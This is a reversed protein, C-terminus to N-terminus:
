APQGQTAARETRAAALGWGLLLFFAGGTPMVTFATTGAVPFLTVLAAALLGLRVPDPRQRLGRALPVLWAIALAGFLLLGPFGADSLAELYHNHPHPVCIAAGGGDSGPVWGRFYRPDECHIRFADFGLGTWPHELGIALARAYIQGYHSNPFNALQDLFQGSMRWAVEPAVLVGAALAAGGAALALLMPLRLRPLLLAVLVLVAIAEIFPMRQGILALTALALSPLALAAWRGGAASAWVLAPLMLRLLMPGARPKPFPGMLQGAGFRGQGMLGRGFVVQLWCELTIWASALGTSYLLWRRMRADALLWNSLALVALPIRGWVLARVVQPWAGQLLSVLVLWAWYAFALVVWPQRYPTLDRHLATRILMLVALGAFMAEAAVRAHILMFPLALVLAQAIQETRAQTRELPM